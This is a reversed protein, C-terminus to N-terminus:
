LCPKKWILWGCNPQEAARAKKSVDLIYQRIREKDGDAEEKAFTMRGAFTWLENGDRAQDRYKIDGYVETPKALQAVHENVQDWDM